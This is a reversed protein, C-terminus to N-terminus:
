PLQARRKVAQGLTRLPATDRWSTSARVAELAAAAERAQGALAEATERSAALAARLRAAEANAADLAAQLEKGEGGRAPPAPADALAERAREIAGRAEGEAGDPLARLRVQFEGAGELTPHFAEVAFPFLGLAAFEELLDLFSAPTFVWCHADNYRPARALSQALAFAGPIRELVEARRAEPQFRGNWVEAGDVAIGQAAVDFVQRLSPRRYGLLYAEVAEALTSDHRLADFTFRKDPVALGLRGGPRLARHLELLWGILDPVHEIVHSAAIYDVPEGVAEHLPAGGWVIDVEVIAAPDIAPDFQNARVVETAAYDVYRVDHEPRRLLPAHLAGIELGRGRAGDAGLMRELRIDGMVKRAM